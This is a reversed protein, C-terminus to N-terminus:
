ERIRSAIWITQFLRLLPREPESLLRGAARAAPFSRRAPFPFGSSDQRDLLNLPINRRGLRHFLKFSIPQSVHIGRITGRSEILGGRVSELGRAPRTRRKVSPDTDNM